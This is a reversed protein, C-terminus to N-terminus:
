YNQNQKLYKKYETSEDIPVRQIKETNDQATLINKIEIDARPTKSVKTRWFFRSCWKKCKQLARWSKESIGLDVDPLM